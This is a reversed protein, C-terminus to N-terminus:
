KGIDRSALQILSSMKVAKIAMNLTIENSALFAFKGMNFDSRKVTVTAIAGCAEVKYTADQECQFGSIALTVPQTVGKITLEGAMSTEEGDLVAKSSKFTITPHNATDFFSTSQLQSNLIRYGTNVSSADINVEATGTRSVPDFVVKGSVKDFKHTQSSGGLYSFSFQSSTQSNDIVYIEPAAHAFASFAVLVTLLALRKM